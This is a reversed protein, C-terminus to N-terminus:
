LHTYFTNLKNLYLFESIDLDLVTCIKLFTIHAMNRNKFNRYLTSENVELIDALEAIKIKKEAM